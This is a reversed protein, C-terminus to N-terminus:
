TQRNHAKELQWFLQRCLEFAEADLDNHHIVALSIRLETVRKDRQDLEVDNM